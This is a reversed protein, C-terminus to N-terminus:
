GAIAGLPTTTLAVVAGCRARAGSRWFSLACQRGWNPLPGRVQTGFLVMPDVNGQLTRSPGHAARADAMTVAWDLGVVDATCDALLGHKGAGGNAHFILPVGPHKARVGAMVREAYPLSGAPPPPTM